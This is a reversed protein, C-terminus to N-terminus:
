KMESLAQIVAECLAKAVKQRFEPNSLLAFDDPNDMFAVETLVAPMKAYKIVVFGATMVGRNKTGISSALKEQVIQAFRQSSIGGGRDDQYYYTETGRANGEGTSNNHISIFLDANLKNAIEPREYLDVYSDDTRIMYTNVGYSKLLENLRLAIDLNLDKEKTDFYYAGTESGGHGPDIVVLKDSIPKQNTFFSLILKGQEEAIYYEPSILEFVVRANIDDYQFIRIKKLNIRDVNMTYEVLPANVNPFTLILNNGEVFATYGDYRPLNLVAIDRGLESSHKILVPSIFVPLNENYVYGEDDEDASGIDNGQNSSNNGTGNGTNTNNPDNSNNNGGPVPIDDRNVDDGRNADDEIKNELSIIICKDSEIVQYGPTGEVDLVIRAARYNTGAEEFQAYRISKLIGKNVNITKQPMPGGAGPIDIVIRDPSTLRMQIYTGFSKIPVVIETHNGAQSYTIDGISCKNFNIVNNTEDVILDMNLFRHLIEAPVMIRSNVSKVPVDILKDVGNVKIIKENDKVQINIKNLKASVMSTNADWEIVGGLKEMVARLSVYLVGNFSLGPVDTVVAEGDIKISYTKGTYEHNEGDYLLMM